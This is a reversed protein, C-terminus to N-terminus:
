KNTERKSSTKESLDPIPIGVGYTGDAEKEVEKIKKPKKKKKEKKGEAVPWENGEGEPPKKVIVKYLRKDMIALYRNEYDEKMAKRQSKDQILTEMMNNYADNAPDFPFIHSHM